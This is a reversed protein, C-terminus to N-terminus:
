TKRWAGAILIFDVFKLGCHPSVHPLQDEDQNGKKKWSIAASEGISLTNLFMNKCVRLKTEKLQLHYSYSDSRRSKEDEKRDRPSKIEEQTILMKVYIKKAMM